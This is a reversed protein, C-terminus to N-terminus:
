TGQLYKCRNLWGSIMYLRYLLYSAFFSYRHNSNMTKRFRLILDNLGHKDWYGCEQIERHIASWNQSILGYSDYNFGMKGIADSDLGLREKLIDRLILKNKLNSRDFLYAEPMQRFYDAIAKAAFPLILNGNIVDVFNRVKRIHVEAITRTAYVDTKLYYLDWKSRRALEGRWYPYVSENEPFIQNSDKLSFGAMGFWEAPTKLIANFLHDSSVFNRLPFLRSTWKARGLVRMERETPPTLMYSDNGGGDIVNAGRFDSLQTTYLPYALAVNDTCPLPAQIFYNKIELLHEAALQDIESLIIHKFGLKRAIDASIGSEDAKGKSKHSILTISNQWGARAMALAISNSDKGASHFLYTPRTRDIGAITAEAIMDLIKNEDPVMVDASLRYDATFPFEHIFTVEIKGKVTNVTARDGIGVIYIDSYATYPPPVVGNQLLFSLGRPCVKQKGPLRLDNLLETISESYLLLTKDSSWYMYIPLAGALDAQLVLEPNNRIYENVM